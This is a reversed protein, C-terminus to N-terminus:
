PGGSGCKSRSDVSVSSSVGLARQVESVPLGPDSASVNATKAVHAVLMRGMEPTLDPIVERFLSNLDQHYCFCSCLLSFSPSSLLNGGSIECPIGM